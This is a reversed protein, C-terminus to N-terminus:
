ASTLQALKEKFKKDFQKKLAQGMLKNDAECTYVIYEDEDQSVEIGLCNLEDQIYNKVQLFDDLATQDLDILKVTKFPTKLSINKRDRILRGTEIASQM